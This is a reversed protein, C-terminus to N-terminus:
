VLTQSFLVLTTQNYSAPGLQIPASNLKLQNLRYTDLGGTKSSLLHLSTNLFVLLLNQNLSNTEVSYSGIKLMTQIVRYFQKALIKSGAYQVLWKPETLPNPDAEPKIALLSTIKGSAM